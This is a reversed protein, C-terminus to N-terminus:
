KLEPKPKPLKVSWKLGFNARLRENLSRNEGSISFPLKFLSLGQLKFLRMSVGMKYASLKFLNQPTPHPPSSQGKKACIEPLFKRGPSQPSTWGPVAGRWARRQARLPKHSKSCWLTLTYRWWTSLTRSIDKSHGLLTRKADLSHRTGRKTSDGHASGIQQNGGCASFRRSFHQTWYHSIPSSHLCINPRSNQARNKQPPRFGQLFFASFNAPYIRQSFESLFEGAITRFKALGLYVKWGLDTRCFRPILIQQVIWRPKDNVRTALGWRPKHWESGKGLGVQTLAEHSDIGAFMERVKGRKHM